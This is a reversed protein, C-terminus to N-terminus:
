VRGLRCKDVSSRWMSDMHMLLAALGVYFVYEGATLAFTTAPSFDVFATRVLWQHVEVLPYHSMYLPYSLEALYVVGRTLRSEAVIPANGAGILLLVPLLVFIVGCEFLRHALARDAFWTMPTFLLAAFVLGVGVAAVKPPLTLRWKLRSLLIGFVLPFCLRVLGTHLHPLTASWGGAISLGHRGGVYPVQFVYTVTFAAALFVLAVLTKLGVRRLVLGYLLNGLYEYYLTWSCANFPALISIGPVPLMMFSCVVALAVTGFSAGKLWPFFVPGAVLQVAFVALGLLLGTVVFPHLRKLRRVCFAGFSMESWRADYAHALMYGMLLLFFEVAFYIHGGFRAAREGGFGELLHLVPVSLGAIARLVDLSLYRSKAAANRSPM